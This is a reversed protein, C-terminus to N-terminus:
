EEKEAYIFYRKAPTETFYYWVAIVTDSQLHQVYDDTNASPLGENALFNRFDGIHGGWQDIMSTGAKDIVHALANEASFPSKNLEDLEDYISPSINYHQIRYTPDDSGAPNSCGVFGCLVGVAFLCILLKKMVREQLFTYPM